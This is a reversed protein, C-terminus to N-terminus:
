AGQILIGHCALCPKIGGRLINSDIWSFTARAIREISVFRSSPERSGCGLLAGVALGLVLYMRLSVALAPM